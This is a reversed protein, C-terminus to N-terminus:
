RHTDLLGPLLPTEAAVHAGELALLREKTLTGGPASFGGIRHGKALIRHCPIVIPVPNRALARGVERAADPAGIQRALEGYSLTRGWPISRAAAYVEAEFPEIRPLDVTVADFDVRRGSLYAQLDAILRDVSAPVAEGANAARARLRRETAGRDAEPLQVRTLGHPSWAVGCAGIATDFLCYFTQQGAGAASTQVTESTCAREHTTM